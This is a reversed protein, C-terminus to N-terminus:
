DFYVCVSKALRYAESPTLTKLSGYVEDESQYEGDVYCKVLMSGRGFSDVGSQNFFRAFDNTGDFKHERVKYTDYETEYKKIRSLTYNAM